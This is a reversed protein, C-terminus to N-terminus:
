DEDLFINVVPRFSIDEFRQILFCLIHNSIHVGVWEISFSRGVDVSASLEGVEWITCRRPQHLNSVEDNLLRKGAAVYHELRKGLRSPRELCQLCHPNSCYHLQDRDPPRPSYELHRDQGGM